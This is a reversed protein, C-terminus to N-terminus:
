KGKLIAAWGAPRVDAPTEIGVGKSVLAYMSKVVRLTLPDPVASPEGLSKNNYLYGTLVLDIKGRGCPVSSAVVRDTSTLLLPNSAGEIYAGIEVDILINPSILPGYVDERNFPEIATVREEVGFDRLIANTSDIASFWTSRDAHNLILLLTRGSALYDQLRKFDSPALSTRPNVTCAVDAGLCDKFRELYVPALGLRQCNVYFTEFVSPDENHVHTKAPITMTSYEEEFGITSYGKRADPIKYTRCNVLDVLPVLMGVILASSVLSVVSVSGRSSSALCCIVFACLLLCQLAAWNRFSINNARNLWNMYGLALEPVGPMFMSFNSFITSDSWLAVRGRGYKFGVNQLLNGYREEPSFEMDGFFTNGGFLASDAFTGRSISVNQVWLPADISCSTLMMLYPIHGGIIPHNLYRQTHLIEHDRKGCWKAKKPINPKSFYREYLPEDVNVADSNFRVKGRTMEALVQNLYTDIGFINTHEGILWLGGGSEVFKRLTSIEQPSYPKTPTKLIVIDHKSLTAEDIEQRNTTVSYHKGLLESLCSYNYVTKVGFIDRAMPLDSKEWDSHYEDVLIRGQKTKGPDDAIVLLGIAVALGTAVPALSAPRPVEFTRETHQGKWSSIALALSWLIACLVAFGYQYEYPPLNLRGSANEVCAIFCCAVFLVANLCAVRLLSLTRQAAYLLTHLSSGIFLLLFLLYALNQSSLLFSVPADAVSSISLMGSRELTLANTYGLLLACKSILIALPAPFVKIRSDLIPWVACLLVGIQLFLASVLAKAALRSTTNRRAYLIGTLLLGAIAFPVAVVHFLLIMCQAFFVLGFFPRGGKLTISVSGGPVLVVVISFLLLTAPALWNVPAISYLYLALSISAISIVM